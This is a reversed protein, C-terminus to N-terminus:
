EKESAEIREILVAIRERVAQQSAELKARGNRVAEVLADKDALEKRLVNIQRESARRAREEERLRPFGLMGVVEAGGTCDIIQKCLVRRKTGDRLVALPRIDRRRTVVIGGVM